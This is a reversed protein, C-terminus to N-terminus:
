GEPTMMRQLRALRPALAHAFAAAFGPLAREIMAENATLSIRLYGPLGCVSGPLCYVGYTALLEAFAQDDEWPARVLLYFTGAPRNTTYGIARLAAILRNRRQQLRAIDISLPELEPLAHQLLANPFAFGTVIQAAFLSSRLAEREPSHPHIAIYGIRQGPTLLTKGYTYIILTDRYYASPSSFRHDDFVVRRYAEDAILYIPRQYRESAVTLLHALAALTAAPYIAGTPNHPSNVIIARTRPGIAAGIAELDLDFHSPDCPVRVPTAGCALLMPEYFFWAPSIYIVEDGPDTLANFGVALGAFAGNTMCIDEPAFPLGHSAQLGAAVSARAAPESFAYAFWDPDQPIAARSLAAGYAAPPLDHPNGFTFDSILRDRPRRAWASDTHFHDFVAMSDMVRQMRRNLPGSNM